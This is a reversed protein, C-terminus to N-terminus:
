ITCSGPRLHRPAADRRASAGLHARFSPGFRKVHREYATCSSGRLSPAESASFFTKLARFRHVAYDLCHYSYCPSLHLRKLETAVNSSLAHITTFPIHAPIRQRLIRPPIGRDPSPDQLPCHWGFMSAPQGDPPTTRTTPLALIPIMRRPSSPYPIMNLPDPVPSPRIISDRIAAEPLHSGQATM